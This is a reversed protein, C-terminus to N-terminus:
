YEWPHTVRVVPESDINGAGFGLALALGAGAGWSVAATVSAAALINLRKAVTQRGILAPVTNMCPLKSGNWVPLYLWSRSHGLLNNPQRQPM